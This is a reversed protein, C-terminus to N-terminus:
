ENLNVTIVTPKNTENMRPQLRSDLALDLIERLPNEKTNKQLFVM